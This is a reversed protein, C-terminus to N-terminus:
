VGYKERLVKIHHTGHGAIIFLIARVTVENKSAIGRRNLENESFSKFLVLNSKRLFTFEDSLDKLTRKNFGAERVFDDQEFGPLQQKEGRAICLARYAFVRETDVVHGLVEKVSWKGEAYAYNGKEEPISNFFKITVNLQDELVDLIDDGKIQEVYGKYYPAFDKESPRM